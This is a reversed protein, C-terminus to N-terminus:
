ISNSEWLIDHAEKFQRCELSLMSQRERERGRESERQRKARPMQPRGVPADGHCSNDIIKCLPEDAETKGNAACHLRVHLELLSQYHNASAWKVQSFADLM